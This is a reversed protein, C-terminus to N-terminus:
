AHFKYYQLVFDEEAVNSDKNVRKLFGLVIYERLM